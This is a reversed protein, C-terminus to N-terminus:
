ALAGQPLHALIRELVVGWDHHALAEARAARGLDAARVRDDRLAALQRRLEGVDGPHTLLGTRGHEVIAPVQGTRSAVIALGAALYEFVKLPSFYDGADAPYPALGVHMDSLLRAVRASPVAGTFVVPAGSRRARAQLAEREPGDGIVVLEVGKLPAVADIAIDVGHWPKLSGVFCVRLPGAAAPPGSAGAALAGSTFASTDVGNPAVVPQAAGHRAAWAAVPPSVAAVVAASSLVRRTLTAASREDVLSRYTRQEEILPANVEVVAPVDLRASADSFLAYREYVLDCGDARVREAIAAATSAIAQEREAVPLRPVPVEVVDIGPVAPGDGRRSAYITVLDGRRAFARAIQRVHISAGKDGLVPIGPDACVYAVRMM